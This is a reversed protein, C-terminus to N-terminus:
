MPLTDETSSAGLDSQGAPMDTTPQGLQYSIYTPWAQQLCHKQWPQHDQATHSPSALCSGKLSLSADHTPEVKLEQKLEQGSKGCQPVAVQFYLGFLGKGEM